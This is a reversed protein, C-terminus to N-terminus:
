EAHEIVNRATEHVIPPLHLFNTAWALIALFIWRAIDKREGLFDVMYDYAASGLRALPSAPEHRDTPARALAEIDKQRRINEETLFDMRREGEALRTYTLYLDTHLRRVGEQVMGLTKVMDYLVADMPGNPGNPGNM